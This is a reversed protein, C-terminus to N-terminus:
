ALTELEEYRDIVVELLAQRLAEGELNRRAVKRLRRSLEADHLIEQIWQQFDQRELHNRISTLPVDNLAERFEWLNAAARGVYNGEADHFYFRKDPPLPARLYKHLHRVHPVNRPGVRFKLLDGPVQAAKSKGPCIYAQGKPLTPLQELMEVGGEYGLLRPALTELEEPLSLRTILYHDLAELLAPATQSPRYSILGFGGWGMAELVLETLMSEGPPCFNQIEDVLFCHPRGRRTRLSRLSRLFEVLYDIREDQDYMSLDLILSNANWESFAIVDHVAPLPTEPGGLLLTQPSVGLGRYDGEPDIICIQYGQQLLSEALLGALWSKGSGSAGFIGVNDEVLAFPDIYVPVGSMRHGLSIRRRPRPTRPPVQGDMLTEVLQRVGNGNEEELVVDVNDAIQPQANAVAVALEAVNFMSRDNEANGCAVVNRPSYGLERLAHLLGTGKSAGPPLIMVHNRNYEIGAGIRNDHMLKHIRSSESAKAAAIALGRDFTVGLNEMKQLLSSELRGFPLILADRRPFYVVAGNEAVIAECLEAFPGETVFRDLIRGTVMIFAMASTRARRITEWMEPDLTGDTTLTGDLDCALVILHASKRRVGESDIKSAYPTARSRVPYPAPPENLVREVARIIEQLRFPKPLYANALPRARAEVDPSGFATILISRLEPQIQRARELLELGNLGPLRLDSVLVHYRRKYLRELAVEGSDCTEVRYSGDQHLGLARHLARAVGLSDEVILIRARGDRDIM